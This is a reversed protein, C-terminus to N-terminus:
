MRLSIDIGYMGGAINTNFTRKGAIELNYFFGIRNGVKDGERAFDYELIFNFTHM